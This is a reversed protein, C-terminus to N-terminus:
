EAALSRSSGLNRPSTLAPFAIRSPVQDRSACVLRARKRNGLCVELIEDLEDSEPDAAQGREELTQLPSRGSSSSSWSATARSSSPRPCATSAGTSAPATTRTSVSGPTPTARPASSAASTRPSDKQAVGYIAVGKAKLEPDAALAMLYQHEFHCPECWSGFVNVVSVHGARLDADTLGAAGDLGPLNLPPASQGILVSPISAPDGAGLRQFLLWALAMFVVLPAYALWRRRRPSAAEAEVSM